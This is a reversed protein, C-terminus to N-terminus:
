LLAALLAAALAVGAAARPAASTVTAPPVYSLFNWVKPMAAGLAGPYQATVDAGVAAGLAAGAAVSSPFQVGGAVRSNACELALASFTSYSRTINNTSSTTVAAVPVGGVTVSYSNNNSSQVVGGLQVTSSSAPATSVYLQWSDSSTINLPAGPIADGGFFNSLVKAAAACVSAHASPFAPYPPNALLPQWAGPTTSLLTEPRPSLQAQKVAWAAAAADHIATHLQAHLQAAQLLSVKPTAVSNLLAAAITSFHGPLGHSGAGLRWYFASEQADNYTIAYDNTFTSNPVNFSNASVASLESAAAVQLATAASAYSTSQPSVVFGATAGFAPSLSYPLVGPATSSGYPAFNLAADSYLKNRRPGDVRSAATTISDGSSSISKLFTSPSAVAATYNNNATVQYGASSSPTVGAPNNLSLSLPSWAASGDALRAALVATAVAVGVNQSAGTVTKNQAAATAASCFNVQNPCASSTNANASKSFGIAWGPNNEAKSWQLNYWLQHNKLLNDFRLNTVSSGGSGAKLPFLQTLLYHAAYSAALAPVGNGLDKMTVYRPCVASANVALVRPPCSGDANFPDVASQSANTTFLLITEYLVVNLLAAVRAAAPLALPQEQFSGAFLKGKPDNPAGAFITKQVAENWDLIVSVNSYGQLM